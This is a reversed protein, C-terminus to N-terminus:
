LSHHSVALAPCQGGGRGSGPWTRARGAPIRPLQEAGTGHSREQELFQELRQRLAKDPQRSALRALEARIPEVARVIDTLKTNRSRLFTAAMRAVSVSSPVDAFYGGNVGRKTSILQEQAVMTTAQRLTPRSVGLKVMLEEESGMFEGASKKMALVRLEAAARQVASTTQPQQEFM